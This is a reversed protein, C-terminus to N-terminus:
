ILHLSEKFLSFERQASEGIYPSDYMTISYLTENYHLALGECDIMTPEPLGEHEFLYKFKSHIAKFNSGTIVEPDQLSRYEKFVRSFVELTDEVIQILSDDEAVETDMYFAVGPCFPKDPNKRVVASLGDQLGELIEDRQERLEETQEFEDTLIQRKNFDKFSPSFSDVKWGDPVAFGFGLRNDIFHKETSIIPSLPSLKTGVVAATAFTLFKRRGLNM